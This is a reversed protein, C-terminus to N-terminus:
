LMKNAFLAGLVAKAQTAPLTTIARQTGGYGCLLSRIASTDLTGGLQESIAERLPIITIINDRLQQTSKLTTDNLELL